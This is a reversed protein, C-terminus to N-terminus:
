ICWTSSSTSNSSGFVAQIIDWAEGHGTGIFILYSYCHNSLVDIEFALNLVRKRCVFLLSHFHVNGHSISSFCLYFKYAQELWHPLSPFVDM